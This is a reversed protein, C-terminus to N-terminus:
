KREVWLKNLWDALVFGQHQTLDSIDSRGLEGNVGWFTVSHSFEEGLRFSVRFPGEIRKEQFYTCGFNAPTEPPNPNDMWPLIQDASHDRNVLLTLCKGMKTYTIREWFRCDECKGM